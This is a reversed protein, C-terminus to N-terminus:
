IAFGYEQGAAVGPERDPGVSQKQRAESKKLEDEAWM